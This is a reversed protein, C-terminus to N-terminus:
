CPLTVTVGSDCMWKGIPMTDECRGHKDKYLFKPQFLLLSNFIKTLKLGFSETREKLAPFGIELRNTDTLPSVSPACVHETKM